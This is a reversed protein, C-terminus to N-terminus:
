AQPLAGGQDSGQDGGHDGGDGVQFEPDPMPYTLGNRNKLTVTYTWTGAVNGIRVAPMGRRWEFHANKGDGLPSAPLGPPAKFDFQIAAIATGSEDPGIANITLSQGRLFAPARMPKGNRIPEVGAPGVDYAHFLLEYNEQVATDSM